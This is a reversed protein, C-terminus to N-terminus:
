ALPHASLADSMGMSGQSELYWEKRGVEPLSHLAKPQPCYSGWSEKPQTNIASAQSHHQPSKTAHAPAQGRATNLQQVILRVDKAYQSQAYVQLGLLDTRGQQRCASWCPFMSSNRVRQQSQKTGCLSCGFKCAKKVQQVQARYTNSLLPSGAEATAGTSQM